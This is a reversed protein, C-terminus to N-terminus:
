KPLEDHRRLLPDKLPRVNAWAGQSTDSDVKLGEEALASM